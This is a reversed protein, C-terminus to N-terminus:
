TRVAVIVRPRGGADKVVPKVAWGPRRSFLETVSEAQTEGIELLVAGGPKLYAEARSAIRRYFALGDPGGDLALRPEHDRIEPALNAYEGQAVYPPNSVIADFLTGEPVPDFLDGILVTVRDAVGNIMANRRALEAADPSADVAVVRSTKHNAALAVAVCGSGTGLELILPSATGKLRNLTELVLTETDPRPILVAPSVQFPLLFFEKAGTLYAVPWGDVRRKVLERFTTRHMALPEEDSRAVLEIRPCKLVHALLIQAELRPSEVGKQGLYTTTWALLERITWVAPSASSPVSPAVTM